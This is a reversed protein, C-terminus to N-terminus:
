AKTWRAEFGATYLIDRLDERISKRKAVKAVSARLEDIERSEGLHPAAAEISQRLVDYEVGLLKEDPQTEWITERPDYFYWKRATYVVEGGLM